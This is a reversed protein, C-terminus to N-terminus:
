DLPFSLFGEVMKELQFLFFLGNVIKDWGIFIFPLQGGNQGTLHFHFSAMWWKTWYLPFPLFGEVMKDPRISIFSLMGGIKDLGISIFPLRRENQQDVANFERMHPMLKELCIVHSTDASLVKINKFCM